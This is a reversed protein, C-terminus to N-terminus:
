SGNEKLRFRFTLRFESEKGKPFEWRLLAEKVAQNFEEHKDKELFVLDLVQGLSNIKVFVKVVGQWGLARARPPYRITNQIQAEIQSIADSSIPNQGSERSSPKNEPLKFFNEKFGKELQAVEIHFIKEQVQNRPSFVLYFIFGHLLFSILFAYRM